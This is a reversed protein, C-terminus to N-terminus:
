SENAARVVQAPQPGGLLRETEVRGTAPLHPAPRRRRQRRLADHAGRIVVTADVHQRDPYRQIEIALQGAVPAVAVNPLPSAAIPGGQTVWGGPWGSDSRRPYGM